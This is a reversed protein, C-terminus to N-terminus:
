PAKSKAGVASSPTHQDNYFRLVKACLAQLGKLAAGAEPGIPVGVPVHRPMKLPPAAALPVATVAAATGVSAAAAMTAPPAFPPAAAAPHQFWPMMAWPPPWAKKTHRVRACWRPGAGAYVSLM